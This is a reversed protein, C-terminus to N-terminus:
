RGSRGRPQPPRRGRRCRSGGPRRVPGARGRLDGRPPTAAPESSVAVTRATPSRAATHSRPLLENWRRTQSTPGSSDSSARAAGALARFRPSLTPRWRPGDRPVPDGGRHRGGLSKRAPSASGPGLHHHGQGGRRHTVGGVAGLDDLAELPRHAGLDQTRSPSSSARRHKMPCRAPTHVPGPGVRPMSRPPPLRSAATPSSARHRGPSSRPPPGPGGVRRAPRGPVGQRLLVTASTRGAGHLGHRGDGRWTRGTAPTASRVTTLPPVTRARARRAVARARRVATPPARALDVLDLQGGILHDLQGVLQGLQVQRGREASGPICARRAGRSGTPAATSAM